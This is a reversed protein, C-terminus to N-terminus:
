PTTCSRSSFSRPSTAGIPQGDTLDIGDFLVKGESPRVLGSIINLLTTKGCGSPGLLAYAGGDSWELDLKKLAWDEAARPKPLYSHQHKAPQDQGDGWLGKDRGAPLLESASAATCNRTMGCDLRGEVSFYMCRDIDIYLQM